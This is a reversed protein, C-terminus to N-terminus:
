KEPFFLPLSYQRRNVVTIAKFQSLIEVEVPEKYIHSHINPLVGDVTYRIEAGEVVNELTISYADEKKEKAILEPPPVRYGYAANDYRKYQTRMRDQFASWGQQKKPTWLVEALAAMRPLALYDFYKESRNENIPAIEQLITGHIFQDSWLTAHGGLVQPRYKEDLNEIMPDFAYVKQLSIPPLWTAAKVEGPINSEAVDFYCYDTLAMVLDHGTKVANIGSEKNHWVMGVAKEDLQGGFIDDWGVITRGYNKVMQQLRGTLYYQLEREDKLGLEKKRAQCHPCTVWRDYKAEDGGIHIYESPFIAFIEDFVDAIFEFTSEKGVCYLEGSISHQVQVQQPEGTCSLHPYAAISSLTHAPIEIEPILEINRLAAYSVIEKIDEQTYYGGTRNEDEGRWAGISTLKPYKKIELRWGSDDVLHLHLVNMKYMGMMDIFHLVYDKDFFYRSVDLMMGRWPYEPADTIEAGEIEWVVNKQRQANFIEPPLMQRLTQIGNFVGAQTSGVINVSKETVTLHYEEMELGKTNDITLFICNTQEEDTQQTILDWGTAPSLLEGLYIALASLNGKYLIETETSLHFVQGNAVYKKPKPVIDAAKVAFSNFVILLLISVFTILTKKIM